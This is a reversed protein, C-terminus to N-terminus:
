EFDKLNYKEMIKKLEGSKRLEAWGKELITAYEKAKPNKTSFAVYIKDEKDTYGAEQFADKFGLKDATNLFVNKDDVVATIRGANLKKMNQEIANEGSVMDVKDKNAKTFDQIEKSYEYDGILGLLKVSKLSDPGTYKWDSGKKTFLTDKTLGQAVKPLVLGKSEDQTAGIVGTVKGERAEQTARTWAMTKYDITHGAKEFIIKVAEVIYGPKDSGATCNYPCWEDALLSITDAFSSFSLSCFLALALSYKM